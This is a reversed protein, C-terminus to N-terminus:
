KFGSIKEVAHSMASRFHRLWHNKIVSSNNERLNRYIKLVTPKTPVLLIHYSIGLYLIDYENNYSSKVWSFNVNELITTEKVINYKTM